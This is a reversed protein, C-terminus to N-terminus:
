FRTMDADTTHLEAQHEIELAALHADTTLNGASGVRMLLDFLIEAHRNGPHILVVQPRVLWSRVRTCARNVDLPDNLIRSGTAISIFGLITARPLGVSRCREAIRGM